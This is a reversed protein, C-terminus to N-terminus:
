RGKFKNGTYPQQNWYQDTYSVFLETNSLIKETSTVASRFHKEEPVYECNILDENLPDNIYRAKIDPCPLPDVFVSGGVLMLYSKDTITRVSQFDHIHGYYYCLITGAPIAEPPEGNLQVTPRYFLGLGSEPIQSPAAVLCEEVPSEFHPLHQNMLTRVHLSRRQLEQLNDVEENLLPKDEEDCSDESPRIALERWRELTELRDLLRKFTSVENKTM